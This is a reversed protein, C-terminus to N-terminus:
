IEVGCNGERREPAALIVKSFFATLNRNVIATAIESTGAGARACFSRDPSVRMRNM